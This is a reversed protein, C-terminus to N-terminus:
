THAEGTAINSRVDCTTRIPTNSTSDCRVLLRPLYRADLVTSDIAMAAFYAVLEWLLQWCLSLMGSPDADEMSGMLWAGDTTAASSM